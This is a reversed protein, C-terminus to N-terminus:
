ETPLSKILEMAQKFDPHDSNRIGLNRQLWRTDKLRATPIDMTKLIEELEKMVCVDNLPYVKM